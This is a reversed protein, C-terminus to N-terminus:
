PKIEKDNFLSSLESLSAQNSRADVNSIYFSGTNEFGLSSYFTENEGISRMIYIDRGTLEDCLAKMCYSGIGMRRFGKDAAVAGIVACSESMAVTMATGIIRNDIVAAKCLATNHRLKHSMDLLFDEYCPVSFGKGECSKLLQWVKELSPFSTIDANTLSKLSSPEKRDALKMIIGQEFPFEPFLRKSCLLSSFGRAYLFEALEDTDSRDTIFATMDSGYESIASTVAGSIDTQIYFNLFNYGTGYSELLCAIRCAYIDSCSTFESLRYCMSSDAYRIM